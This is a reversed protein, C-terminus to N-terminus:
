KEKNTRGLRKVVEVLVYADGLSALYYLNYEGDTIRGLGLDGLYYNIVRALFKVEDLNNISSSYSEGNPLIGEFQSDKGSLTLRSGMRKRLYTELNKVVM